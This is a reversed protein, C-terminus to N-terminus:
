AIRLRFPSVATYASASSSATVPSRGYGAPGIVSFAIRASWPMAGRLRYEPRWGPASVVHAGDVDVRRHWAGGHRGNRRMPVTPCWGRTARCRSGYRVSNALPREHYSRGETPRRLPATFMRAAAFYVSTLDGLHLGPVLTSLFLNTGVRRLARSQGTSVRRSTATRMPM